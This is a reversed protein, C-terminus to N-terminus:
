IQLQLSKKIDNLCFGARDTETCYTGPPPQPPAGGCASSPIQLSGASNGPARESGSHWEAWSATSSWRQAALSHAGSLWARRHRDTVIGREQKALRDPEAEKKGWVCAPYELNPEFSAPSTLRRPHSPGKAGNFHKWHTFNSRLFSLAQFPVCSKLWMNFCSSLENNYNFQIARRHVSTEYSTLWISYTLQNALSSTIWNNTLM